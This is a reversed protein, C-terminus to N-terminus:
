ESAVGAPSWGTPDALWARIDGMRWGSAHRTLKIPAPFRSEAVKAYVSARSLGVLPLVDYIRLLADEPLIAYEPAQREKQPQAEQHESM